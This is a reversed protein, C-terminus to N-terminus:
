LFRLRLIGTGELKRLTERKLRESEINMRVNLYEFYTYGLIDTFVIAVLIAM